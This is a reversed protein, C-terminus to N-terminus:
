RLQYLVICRITKPANSRPDRGAARDSQQTRTQTKQVSVVSHREMFSNMAMKKATSPPITQQTIVSSFRRRFSRSYVCAGCQLRDAYQSEPDDIRFSRKWHKERQRDAGPEVGPLPITTLRSVSQFAMPRRGRSSCSLFSFPLRTDFTFPSPASATSRFSRAPWTQLCRNLFLPLNKAGYKQLVSM